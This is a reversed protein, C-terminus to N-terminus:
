LMPNILAAAFDRFFREMGTSNEDIIMNSVRFSIEGFISGTVPTNVIDNYSPPETEMFYEWMLSGFFAYATSEYFNMGNARAASYYNAGHYPHMFQNMLYGDVDWEFGNRFNNKITGISIDSWHEGSLYKNYAWVGFNLSIIEVAPLWYNKGTEKNDNEINNTNRYYNKPISIYYLDSSQGNVANSILLLILTALLIFAPQKNM